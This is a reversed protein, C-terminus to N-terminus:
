VTLENRGVTFVSIEQNGRNKIRAKVSFDRKGNLEVTEFLFITTM